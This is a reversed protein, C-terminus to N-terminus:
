VPESKGDEELLDELWPRLVIKKEEALAKKFSAKADKDQWNISRLMAMKKAMKCFARYQNKRNDSLEPERNLFRRFASLGSLLTELLHSKPDKIHAGLLCRVDLTRIRLKYHMGKRPIQQLLEHAQNYNNQHFQLLAHALLSSERRTDPSLFPSYRRILNQTWLDAKQFGGVTCINFLTSDTVKGNLILLENQDGYQFLEFLNTVFKRDINLAKNLISVLKQLMFAQDTKALQSGKTIFLQYVKDLHHESFEQQLLLCLEYLLEIQVYQSKLSIAAQLVGEVMRLQDSRDYTLQQAYFDCFSKLKESILFLDLYHDLQDYTEAGTEHSIRSPHDYLDTYVEFATLFAQANYYKPSGLLRLQKQCSKQFIQYLQQEFLAKRRATRNLYHDKKFIEVALFTEILRSLESYRQNIFSRDDKYEPFLVSAIEMKDVREYNPHLGKLYDFLLLPHPSSVFYPSALFQEM